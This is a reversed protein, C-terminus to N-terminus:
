EPSVKKINHIGHRNLFADMANPQGKIIEGLLEREAATLALSDEPHRSPNM